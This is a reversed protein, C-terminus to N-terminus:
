SQRSDSRLEIRCCGFDLMDGKRSASKKLFGPALSYYIYKGERETAVLDAQLLIRLHHSAKAIDIELLEAVDSVSCPGGQLCEVIRLRLPDGLAKLYRACRSPELGNSM